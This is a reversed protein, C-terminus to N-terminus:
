TFYAKLNRLGLTITERVTRNTAARYQIGISALFLLDFVPNAPLASLARLAPRLRPWKIYPLFFKHLNEIRRVEPGPLPSTRFYSESVRDPDASQPGGDKDEGSLIRDGLETRPYPQFISVRPFDVDMERNWELTKEFQELTEGPLGAMNYTLLKIGARKILRAARKPVEDGMERGLVAARLGADASEVGLQACYCGADALARVIEEDVREPRLNVIFPLGIERAYRGLFELAWGKKLGFTDDVFNITRAGGARLTKVEAIVNGVSRLRVYPGKGRTLEKLSRNFCYTCDYPCGRGAMVRKMGSSAFFPDANDALDRAPFPLADLDAELPAPDNRFTKGGSKVWLGPVNSIDDGRDVRGLLEAVSFEGEGRCIADLAPHELAEPFFTPHPGGMIILGGQWPRIAAAMALASRHAGTTSTLAVVDPKQDFVRPLIKRPDRAMALSPEHGAARASAALYLLGLHEFWETQIFLIRAM